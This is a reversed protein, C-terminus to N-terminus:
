KYIKKKIYLRGRLAKQKSHKARSIIEEGVSHALANLRVRRWEASYFLVTWSVFASVFHLTLSQIIFKSFNINTIITLLYRSFLIFCFATLKNLPSFCFLYTFASSLFYFFSLDHLANLSM